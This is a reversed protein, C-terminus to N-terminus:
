KCLPPTNLLSSQFTELQRVTEGQLYQVDM